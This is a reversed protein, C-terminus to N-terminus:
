GRDGDRLQVLTAAQELGIQAGAYALPSLLYSPVAASIMEHTQVREATVAEALLDNLWDGELVAKAITWAAQDPVHPRIIEAVAAIRALPVQASAPDAAAGEQVGRMIDLLPKLPCGDGHAAVHAEFFPLLFENM